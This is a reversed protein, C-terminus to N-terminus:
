TVYIVFSSFIIKSNPKSPQNREESPFKIYPLGDKCDMCDTYAQRTIRGLLFAVHKAHERGELNECESEISHNNMVFYLLVIDFGWNCTEGFCTECLFVRRNFNNTICVTLKYGFHFTAKTGTLDSAGNLWDIPLYLIVGNCHCVVWCFRVSMYVGIAYDYLLHSFCNSNYTM